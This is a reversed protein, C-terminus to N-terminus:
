PRWVTRRRTPPRGRYGGLAQATQAATANYKGYEQELRAIEARM